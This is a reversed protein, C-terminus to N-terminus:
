AELFVSTTEPSTETGTSSGGVPAPGEEAGESGLVVGSPHFSTECVLVVCFAKLHFKFTISPPLGGAQLHQPRTQHQCSGPLRRRGEGRFGSREATGVRPDARNPDSDNSEAAM